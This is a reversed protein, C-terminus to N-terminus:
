KIHKILYNCRENIKKKRGKHLEIWSDVVIGNGWNNYSMKMYLRNLFKNDKEVSLGVWSFGKDKALREVFNMLKKAIGKRRYENMVFLTEIHPCKKLNARVKRIKSGDFRIQVHAIPKKGEWAILWLSKGKGQEALKKGHLWPLEPNFLETNLIKLDQKSIPRIKM